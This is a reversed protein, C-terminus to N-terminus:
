DTMNEKDIQLNNKFNLDTQPFPIVINNEEFIRNIAFRLGSEIILWNDFDKTWSRLIFDLSSDGFNNFLVIPTPRDLVGDIEKGAVLLLEKVKEVDSGYEVGVAVDM